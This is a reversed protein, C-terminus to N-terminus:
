MAHVYRFHITANHSNVPIDNYGIPKTLKYWSLKYSRYIHIGLDVWLGSSPKIHLYDYMHCSTIIGFAYGLGM